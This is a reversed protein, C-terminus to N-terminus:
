NDNRTERVRERLGGSDGEDAIGRDYNDVWKRKM